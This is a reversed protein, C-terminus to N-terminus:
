MNMDGITKLDTEEGESRTFVKYLESGEVNMQPFHHAVFVRWDGAPSKCHSKSANKLMVILGGKKWLLDWNHVNGTAAHIARRSVGQL